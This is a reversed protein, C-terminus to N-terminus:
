DPMDFNYDGMTWYCPSDAINRMNDESGSHWCFNVRIKFLFGLSRLVSELEPFSALTTVQSTGEAISDKIALKIIDKLAARDDFDGYLDLFRTVKIGKVQFTRSILVLSPLESRGAMYFKLESIYPCNLYRWKFFDADRYTTTLKDNNNYKLFVKELIIPDPSKVSRATIPKFRRFYERMLFTFPSAAGAILKLLFGKIGKALFVRKLRMPRLALLFYHIDNRVGWGHKKVMKAHLENPFGIKLDGMKQVNKDMLTQLGQGRFVPDVIMDIWWLAYHKKGNLLCNMPIIASYAVLRDEKLAVLRNQNGRHAWAGYRHLFESKEESFVRRMFEHLKLEDLEDAKKLLFHSM